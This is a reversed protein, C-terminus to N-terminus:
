KKSVNNNMFAKLCKICEHQIKHHVSGTRSSIM